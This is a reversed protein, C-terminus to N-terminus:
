KTLIMRKTSIEKNDIILAYLYMGAEFEAGNIVIKGKGKDKLVFEKLQVGNMNYIFIIAQNSNEPIFYNIETKENFPNPTNQLLNANSPPELSNNPISLSSELLKNKLEAIQMQQDKIAEVLLPIVYIYNIGLYGNNDEVIAEPLIEKLEQALFGLCQGKSFNYDEFEEHNFKYSKGSLKLVKNLAGEIPKIEKKFRKDSGWGFSGTVWGSGNISINGDVFLKVGSWAQASVGIGLGYNNLFMQYSTNTEAGASGWFAIGGNSGLRLWNGDKCILSLDGISNSPFGLYKDNNGLYLKNGLGSILQDGFIELKKTTSTSPVGGIGVSGGTIIKIQAHIQTSWLAITLLPIFKRITKM